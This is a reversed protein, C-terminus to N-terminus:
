RRVAGVSDLDRIAACYRRNMTLFMLDSTASRVGTAYMCGVINTLPGQLQGFRYDDLCRDRDYGDVGHAVLEAHYGDVLQAEFARRTDVEFSTSVFFALDRGPLGLSVGQWDVAVVGDGAPPFMLNELRYDGHIVTFPEPRDLQWAVIVDAVERLTAADAGDLGAGRYRAVFAETSEDLMRALHKANRQNRRGLFGLEVLSEDNWRSAHLRALNRVADEAQPLSCGDAQVGPVRPALDDLLLVFDLADDSIAAYWCRPASVDLTDVLHLYFGVENRYGAAIARRTEEDGAPLKAVLTPPGDAGEYTLHLRHATGMQGTGIQESAVATVVLDHGRSRLAETLWAPTLADVHDVVAHMPDDTPM